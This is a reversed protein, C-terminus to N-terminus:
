EPLAGQKDKGVWEKEAQAAEEDHSESKFKELVEEMEDWHHEGLFHSITTKESVRSEAEEATVCINGDIDVDVAVRIALVGAPRAPLNHLVFQGVTLNEEGKPSAGAVVSVTVKTQNDKSTTFTASQTQPLVAQWPVLSHVFGDAKVVGVRVAAINYLTPHELGSKYSSLTSRAAQQAISLFSIKTLEIPAAADGRKWISQAAQTSKVSADVVVIREIKSGADSPPQQDLTAQAEDVFQAIIADTDSPPSAITTEKITTSERIGEEVTTSVLRGVALTPALHFLIENRPGHDGSVILIHGLQLNESLVPFVLGAQKFAQLIPKRSQRDLYASLALKIVIPKEPLSAALDKVSQELNDGLTTTSSRAFSPDQTSLLHTFVPSGATLGSFAIGAILPM